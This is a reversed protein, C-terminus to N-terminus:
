YTGKGTTKTPAHDVIDWIIVQEIASGLNKKVLM